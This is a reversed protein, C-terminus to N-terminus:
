VPAPYFFLVHTQARAKGPIDPAIPQSDEAFSPIAATNKESFTRGEVDVDLDLDFFLM